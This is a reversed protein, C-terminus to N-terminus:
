YNVSIGCSAAMRAFESEWDNGWVGPGGTPDVSLSRGSSALEQIQHQMVASQITQAVIGDLQSAVPENIVLRVFRNPGHLSQMLLPVGALQLNLDSVQQLMTQALYADDLLGLLGYHDPISDQPSLFNSVNAVGSPISRRRCEPV